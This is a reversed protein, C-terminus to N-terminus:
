IFRPGGGEGKKKGGGSGQLIRQRLFLFFFLFFLLSSENVTKKQDHEGPALKDMNVQVNLPLGVRSFISTDAVPFFFFFFFFLFCDFESSFTPCPSFFSIGVTKPCSVQSADKFLIAGMKEEETSFLLSPRFLKDIISPLSPQLFQLLIANKPSFLTLCPSLYSQVLIRSPYRADEKKMEQWLFVITDYM